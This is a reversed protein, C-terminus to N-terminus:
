NQKQFQGFRQVAGSIAVPCRVTLMVANSQSHWLIQNLVLQLDFSCIYRMVPSGPVLLSIEPGIKRQLNWSMKTRKVLSLVCSICTKRHECIKILWASWYQLWLCTVLASNCMFCNNITVISFLVPCEVNAICFTWNHPLWTCSPPLAM